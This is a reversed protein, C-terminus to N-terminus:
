GVNGQNRPTSRLEEPLSLFGQPPPPAAPPQTPYLWDGAAHPLQTVTRPRGGRNKGGAQAEKQLPLSAMVAAHPTNFKEAHQKANEWIDRASIYAEEISPFRSLAVWGVYVNQYRVRFGKQKKDFYLGPLAPLSEAISMIDGRIKRKGSEDQLTFKSLSSSYSKSSGRRGSWTGSSGCVKKSAKKRAAEAARGGNSRRSPKADLELGSLVIDLQRRGAPLLSHDLKRVQLGGGEVLSGGDRPNHHHSHSTQRKLLHGNTSYHEAAANENLSRFIMHHYLDSTLSSEMDGSGDMQSSGSELKVGGVSQQSDYLDLYGSQEALKSSVGGTGDVGLFHDGTLTFQDQFGNRTDNLKTTSLDISEQSRDFQPDMGLISNSHTCGFPAATMYTWNNPTTSDDLLLSDRGYENWITLGTHQDSGHCDGIDGDMKICNPNSRETDTSTEPCNLFSLCSGNM